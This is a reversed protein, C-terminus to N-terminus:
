TCHRHKSTKPPKLLPTYNDSPCVPPTWCGDMNFGFMNPDLETPSARLAVGVESGWQTRQTRIQENPLAHMDVAKGSTCRIVGGMKPRVHGYQATKKMETM